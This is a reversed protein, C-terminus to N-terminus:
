EEGTDLITTFGGFIMRKGDFPMPGLDEFRPDEVMKANADDRTAKDPYVIWSFVVDEGDEAKVARYFDTTEGHKIDDSWTEVIRLAGLDKFIPAAARAMKEYNARKDRPVPILFGEVYAM